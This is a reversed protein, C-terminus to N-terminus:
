NISFNGTKHLGAIGDEVRCKEYVEWRVGGVGVM